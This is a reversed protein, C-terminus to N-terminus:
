GKSYAAHLLERALGFAEGHCGQCFYSTEPGAGGDAVGSALLTRSDVAKASGDCKLQYYTHLLASDEAYFGIESYRMGCSECRVTLVPDPPADARNALHHWAGSAACAAQLDAHAGAYRVQDDPSTSDSEIASSTSVLYEIDTLAERSMRLVITGDPGETYTIARDRDNTM